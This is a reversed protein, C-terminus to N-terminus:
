HYDDIGIIVVACITEIHAMDHAGFPKFLLRYKGRKEGISPVDVAFYLFKKGEKIPHKGTAPPLQAYTPAKAIELLRQAVVKAVKKDYTRSLYGSDELKLKLQDNQWYIEM